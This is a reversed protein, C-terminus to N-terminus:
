KKSTRVPSSRFSTFTTFLYNITRPKYLLGLVEFRVGLVNRYVAKPRNKKDSGKM